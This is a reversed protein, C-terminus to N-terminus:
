FETRFLVNNVISVCYKFMSVFNKTTVQRVSRTLQQKLNQFLLKSFTLIIQFLFRWIVHRKHMLHIKGTHVPQYKLKSWHIIWIMCAYVINNMYISLLPLLISHFIIRLVFNYLRNGQRFREKVNSACELSLRLTNRLYDSLIM